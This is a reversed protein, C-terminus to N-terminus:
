DNINEKNICEDVKEALRNMMEDKDDKKFRKIISLAKDCEGTAIYANALNKQISSNDLGLRIAKKFSNVAESHNGRGGQIVGLSEWYIGFEPLVKITKQISKEAAELKNLRFYAMSEASYIIAFNEHSFCHYRAKVLNELAKEPENNDILLFAYRYYDIDAKIGSGEFYKEYLAIALKPNDERHMEALGDAGM